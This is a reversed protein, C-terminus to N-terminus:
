FQDLDITVGAASRAGNTGVGDDPVFIMRRTQTLTGDAGFVLHVTEPPKGPEALTRTHLTEGDDWEQITTYVFTGRAVLDDGDAGSAPEFEEIEITRGLAHETVRERKYAEM